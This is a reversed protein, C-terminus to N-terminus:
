KGAGELKKVEAAFEAEDIIGANKLDELDKRRAAVTKKATEVADAKAAAAKDRDESSFFGDQQMKVFLSNMVKRNMAAFIDRPAADMFLSGVLALIGARGRIVEKFRYQRELGCPRTVDIEFSFFYDEFNGPWLMLTFISIMGSLFHAEDSFDCVVSICVDDPSLRVDDVRKCGSFLGSDQATEFVAARLPEVLEDGRTGCYFIPTNRHFSSKQKAVKMECKLLCKPKFKCEARAADSLGDCPPTRDMQYVICGSLLALAAAFAVYFLKKM